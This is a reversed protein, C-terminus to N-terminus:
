GFIGAIATVGGMVAVAVFFAIMLQDILHSLAIDSRLSSDKARRIATVRERIM